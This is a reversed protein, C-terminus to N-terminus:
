PTDAPYSNPVVTGTAGAANRCTASVQYTGDPSLPVGFSVSGGSASGNLTTANFTLTVPQGDEANTTVVFNVQYPSGVASARDGAPAPVGNLAPHTATITPQSINCTPPMAGGTGGGGSGGGGPGGGGSGGGATGGGGTGGSGGGGSGGGATGGGGSGGGGSGGGATGGG